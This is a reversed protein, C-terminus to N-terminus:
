DQMTSGYSFVTSSSSPGMPQNLLDRHAFAASSVSASSSMGRREFLPPDHSAASPARSPIARQMYDEVPRPERVVRLWELALVLTRTAILIEGQSSATDSPTHWLHHLPSNLFSEGSASVDSHLRRGGNLADEFSPAVSWTHSAGLSYPAAALWRHRSLVEASPREGPSHRFCLQLFDRCDASVTTPLDPAANRKQIRAILALENAVGVRLNYFPPRRTAMEVMVCGVGWIDSAASPARGELVEPAMYFATGPTGGDEDDHRSGAISGFDALKLCGHLDVLLNDSKLDGHPRNARHLQQLGRLLQACYSRMVQEPLEGFKDIVWRLSGPFIAEEFLVHRDTHRMGGLMKVVNPHNMSKLFEMEAMLAREAQVSPTRLEKCAFFAGTTTDMALAVSSFAGQGLPPGRKWQSITLPGTGCAGLSANLPSFLSAASAVSAQVSGGGGYLSALPPLGAATPIMEAAARSGTSRQLQELRQALSNREHLLRQNERVYAELTNNQRAGNLPNQFAGITGPAAKDSVAVPVAGATVRDPDQLRNYLTWCYPTIGSIYAILIFEFAGSIWRDTGALGLRLGMLTLLAVPLLAWLLLSACRKREASAASNENVM